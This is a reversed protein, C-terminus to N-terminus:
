GNCIVEQIKDIIPQTLKGKFKIFSFTLEGGKNYNNWHEVELKEEEYVAEWTEVLEKPMYFGDKTKYQYARNESLTFLEDKKIQGEYMDFPAKYGVIKGSIRENSFLVNQEPLPPYHVDILSDFDAENCHIYGNTHLSKLFDKLQQIPKKM